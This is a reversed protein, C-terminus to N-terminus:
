TSLITSLIDSVTLWIRYDIAPDINLTPVNIFSVLTIPDWGIIGMFTFAHM